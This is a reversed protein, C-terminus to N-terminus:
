RVSAACRATSRSQRKGHLRTEYPTKLAKRSRQLLADLRVMRMSRESEWLICMRERLFYVLITQKKMAFLAKWARVIFRTSLAHLEYDHKTLSTFLVCFPENQASRHTHNSNCGEGGGRARYPPPPRARQQLHFCSFIAPKGLFRRWRATKRVGFRAPM